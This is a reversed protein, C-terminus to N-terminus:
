LGRWMARSVDYIVILPLVSIHSFTSCLSQLKSQSQADEMSSKRHGRSGTREDLKSTPFIEDATRARGGTQYAFEM